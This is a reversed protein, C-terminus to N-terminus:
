LWAIADDIIVVGKAFSILMHTVTWSRCYKAIAIVVAAVFLFVAAVVSALVTVAMVAIALVAVFVSGTSLLVVVFFVVVRLV